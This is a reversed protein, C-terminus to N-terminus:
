SVHEGENQFGCIDHILRLRQESRAPIECLPCSSSSPPEPTKDRTNQTFAIQLNIRPRSKSNQGFRKKLPAGPNASLVRKATVHKTTVVRQRRTPYASLVASSAFSNQGFRARCSVHDTRTEQDLMRCTHAAAAHERAAPCPERNVQSVVFETRGLIGPPV